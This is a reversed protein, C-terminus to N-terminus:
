RSIYFIDFRFSDFFFVYTNTNNEAIINVRRIMNSSVGLLAALNAVLNNTFFSSPTVPPLGFTLVLLPAIKLDIVTNGDILFYALQHTRFLLRYHNEKQIQSESIRRKGISFTQM